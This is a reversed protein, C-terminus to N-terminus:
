ARGADIKCRLFEDYERVERQRQVFERMLDCVVLYAPQPAAEAETMFNERLKSEPRMSFVAQKLM